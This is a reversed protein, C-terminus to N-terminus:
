FTKGPQIFKGSFFLNFNMHLIIHKPVHENTVNSHCSSLTSVAHQSQIFVSIELMVHLAGTKTDGSYCLLQDSLKHKTESSHSVWYICDDGSAWSSNAFGSVLM